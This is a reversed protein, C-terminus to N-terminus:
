RKLATLFGRVARANEGGPELVLFREYARIAATNDGREQLVLGMVLFTYPHSRDLAESKRLLRLAEDLSGLEYNARGLQAYAKASGPDFRLASELARKADDYKEQELLRRGKEYREAFLAAPNERKPEPKRPEPKPEPKPAVPTVVVVKPEPAPEPTPAPPEVQVVASASAATGSAASSATTAGGSAGAVLEAALDAASRAPELPEEGQPGEHAAERLAEEPTRVEAGMAPLVVNPRPAEAPVPELAPAPLEQSDGANVAMIVGGLAAAVLGVAVMVKTMLGQNERERSVRQAADQQEVLAMLETADSGRAFFADDEAAPAAAPPTPPVDDLGAPPPTEATIVRAPEATAPAAAPPPAPSSPPTTEVASASPPPVAAPTPLSVYRPTPGPDLAPFGLVSPQPQGFSGAGPVPPLAGAFPATSTARLLEDDDRPIEPPQPEPPRDTWRVINPAVVPAGEAPRTLRVTDKSAPAAPAPPSAAPAPPDTVGARAFADAAAARAAREKENAPPPVSRMFEPVALELLQQRQASQQQVQQLLLEDFTAPTQPPSELGPAPEAGGGAARAARDAATTLVGLTRLKRLVRLM